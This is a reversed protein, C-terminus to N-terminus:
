RQGRQKRMDEIIDATTKPKVIETVTKKMSASPLNIVNKAKLEKKEDMSVPTVNGGKWKRLSDGIDKYLAARPRKDGNARAEDEAISALKLLYPDNVIDSYETAFKRSAEQFDVTDLVRQTTDHVLQEPTTNARGRLLSVAYAKQEENGHELAYAVTKDDWEQSPSEQQQQPQAYKTEIERLLRTAEELRKDATSEKQLARIGADYIKDKPVEKEEGDVKIKITEAMAKEQPVEEEVEPTENEQVPKQEEEKRSTDVIEGGHAVIEADREQRAREAISAIMADREANGTSAVEEVDTQIATQKM